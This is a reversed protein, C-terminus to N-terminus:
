IVIHFIYQLLPDAAGLIKPPQVRVMRIRATREHNFSFSLHEAFQGGNKRNGDQKAGNRRSWGQGLRSAVVQYLWM